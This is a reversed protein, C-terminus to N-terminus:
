MNFRPLPKVFTPRDVTGEDVEEIIVPSYLSSPASGGTPTKLCDYMSSITTTKDNTAANYWMSGNRNKNLADYQIHINFTGHATIGCPSQFDTHNIWDTSKENLIMNLFHTAAHDALAFYKVLLDHCHINNSIATEHVKSCTAAFPARGPAGHGNLTKSGCRDSMVRGKQLSNLVNPHELDIHVGTNNGFGAAKSGRLLRKNGSKVFRIISDGVSEVISGSLFKNAQIDSVAIDNSSNLLDININPAFSLTNYIHSPSKSSLFQMIISKYFYLILINEEANYSVFIPEGILAPTDMELLMISKPIFVNNFRVIIQFIYALFTKYMQNLHLATEINYHLMFGHMYSMVHRMYKNIDTQPTNTCTFHYQTEGVYFKYKPAKQSMNQPMSTQMSPLFGNSAMFTNIGPLSFVNSNATVGPPKKDVKRPRGKSVMINVSSTEDNHQSMSSPAFM